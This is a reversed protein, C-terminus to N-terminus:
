PAMYEFTGTVSFMRSICISRNRPDQTLQVACGFDCLVVRCQASFTTMLVNDMKLDRHVINHSHLYAVGKLVQFLISAAEINPLKCRKFQWYSYLDGGPYLEQFVYSFANASCAIVATIPITCTKLVSLLRKWKFSILSCINILVNLLSFL